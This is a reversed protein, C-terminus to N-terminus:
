KLTNIIIEPLLRDYKQNKGAYDGIFIVEIWNDGKELKFETTECDSAYGNLPSKKLLGNKVDNEFVGSLAIKTDDNNPNKILLNCYIYVKNNEIKFDSYFSEKDDISLENKQCSCFCLVLFSLVFIIIKKQKMYMYGGIKVM